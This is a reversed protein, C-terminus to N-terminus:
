VWKINHYADSPLRGTSPKLYREKVIRLSNDYPAFERDYYNEHQVREQPRQPMYRPNNQQPYDYQPVYHTDRHVYPDGPRYAGVHLLPEVREPIPRPNQFGSRVVEALPTVRHPNPDRPRMPRRDGTHLLHKNGRLTSRYIKAILYALDPDHNKEEGVVKALIDTVTYNLQRAYDIASNTLLSDCKEKLKEVHHQIQKKVKEDRITPSIDFGLKIYESKNPIPKSLKNHLLQGTTFWKTITTRTSRFEKLRDQKVDQSLEDYKFTAMLSALDSKLSEFTGKFEGALDADFVSDTDDEEIDIIPPPKVTLSNLTKVSSDLFTQFSKALGKPICMLVYDDLNEIHRSLADFAGDGPFSFIGGPSAEINQEHAKRKTARNTDSTSQRHPSPPPPMNTAM